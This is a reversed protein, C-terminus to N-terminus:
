LRVRAGTTQDTVLIPGATALAFGLARQEVQASSPLEATDQIVRWAAKGTPLAAVGQAIVSEHGTAPSAGAPAASGTGPRLLVRAGVLLLAVPVRGGFITSPHPHGRHWCRFGVSGHM